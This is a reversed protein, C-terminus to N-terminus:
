RRNKYALGVKRRYKSAQRQTPKIGAKECASIFNKNSEAFERNSVWFCKRETRQMGATLNM